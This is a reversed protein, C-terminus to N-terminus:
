FDLVSDNRRVALCQQRSAACSRFTQRVKDFLESLRGSGCITDFVAAKGGRASIQAAARQSGSSSHGHIAVTFGHAALDEVIARGIRKAGGTVLATIAPKAM